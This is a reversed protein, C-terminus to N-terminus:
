QERLQNFKFQKDSVATINVVRKTSSDQGTKFEVIFDRQPPYSKLLYDALRVSEVFPQSKLWSEIEDLSRARAVAAALAEELAAFDVSSSSDADM